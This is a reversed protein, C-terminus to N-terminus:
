KIICEEKYRLTPDLPDITQTLTEVLWDRVEPLLAKESIDVCTLLQNAIMKNAFVTHIASHYNEKLKVLNTPDNSWRLNTDTEPHQCLLHHITLENGKRAM